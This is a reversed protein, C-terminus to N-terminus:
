LNSLRPFSKYCIRNFITRSVQRYLVFLFSGIFIHIFYLIPVPLPPISLVFIDFSNNYRNIFNYYKAKKGTGKKVNMFYPKKFFHCLVRDSVPM